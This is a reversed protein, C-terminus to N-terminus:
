GFGIHAQPGREAHVADRLWSDRVVGDSSAVFSALVGAVM